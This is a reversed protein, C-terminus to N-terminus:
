GLTSLPMVLGGLSFYFLEPEATEANAGFAARLPRTGRLVRTVKKSKRDAKMLRKMKNM